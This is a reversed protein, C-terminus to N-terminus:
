ISTFLSHILAIACLIAALICYWILRNGKKDRVITTKEKVIPTIYDIRETGPVVSTEVDIVDLENIHQPTDVNKLSSKGTKEEFINPM